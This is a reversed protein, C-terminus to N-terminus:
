TQRAKVSCISRLPEAHLVDLLVERSSNKYITGLFNCVFKRKNYIPVESRKINPFDRYRNYFSSFCFIEILCNFIVFETTTKKYNPKTRTSQNTRNYNTINPHNEFFHLCKM